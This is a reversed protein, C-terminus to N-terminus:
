SPSKQHKHVWPGKSLFNLKLLSKKILTLQDRPIANVRVAYGTSFLEQTTTHSGVYQKISYNECYENNLIDNLEQNFQYDYLNLNTEVTKNEGLNFTFFERFAQKHDADLKTYYKSYKKELELSNLQRM